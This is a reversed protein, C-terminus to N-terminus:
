AEAASGEPKRSSALRHVPCYKQAKSRKAFPKGCYLCTSLIPSLLRPVGESDLYVVQDGVDGILLLTKANGGLAFVHGEALMEQLEAATVHARVQLGEIDLMHAARLSTLANNMDASLFGPAGREAGSIQQRSYAQGRKAEQRHMALAEALEPQSLGLEERFAKMQEATWM